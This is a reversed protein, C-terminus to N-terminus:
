TRQRQQRYDQQCRRQRHWQNAGAGGLILNEINGSLTYSAITQVTDSGGGGLEAIIDETIDVIYTDDGLGGTMSDKGAGGELTDNNDNGFLTDDGVAGFLSNNGSNGTIVNDLTNGLGTLDAHGSCRSTRSIAPWPRPM